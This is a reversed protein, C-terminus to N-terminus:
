RYEDNLDCEAIVADVSAISLGILGVSLFTALLKKLKM